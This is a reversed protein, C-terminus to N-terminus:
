ADFGGFYLDGGYSPPFNYDLSEDMNETSQLNGNSAANPFLSPSLYQDTPDFVPSSMTQVYERSQHPMPSLIQECVACNGMCEINGCRSGYGSDTSSEGSRRHGLVHSVDFTNLTESPEVSLQKICAVLESIVMNKMRERSEQDQDPLIEGLTRDLRRGLLRPLDNGCM